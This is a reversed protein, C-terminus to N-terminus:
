HSARFSAALQQLAPPLQTADGVDGNAIADMLGGTSAPDVNELLSAQGAAALAAPDFFEAHLPAPETADAGPLILVANTVYREGSSDSPKNVVGQGKVWMTTSGGGDLNVAYVAGLSKMEDAFGILTMGVSLGPARGDVTVLLIHGDATTGIGTRPNRSCFYSSCTKAVNVGNNVLLPMGGVVDMVGTWRAAGVMDWTLRIVTGRALHQLTAAGLGGNHNAALILVGKRFRMRRSQCNVASVKYDRYVGQQLAAWHMKGARLLRVFCGGSPPKDASGGLKTYGDIDDALPDGHNWQAVNFRKNTTLNQASVDMKANEVYTHSEDKSIAFSAGNQFGTMVASGDAAFNHLPTGPDVNFDGNIAALAGNASGMTSTRARGPLSGGALTTDLTVAKAPDVTLVRIQEPHQPDSNDNIKTLVLGPALKDTSITLRAHAASAPSAAALAVVLSAASVLGVLKTRGRMGTIM